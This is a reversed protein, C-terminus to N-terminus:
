RSGSKAIQWQKQQKRAAEAEVKNKIETCLIFGQLVFAPQSMLDNGGWPLTGFEKFQSWWQIHRWADEDVQSWPCRRLSPMWDWAINENKDSDCNRLSRYKDGEEYGEGKCKSCSWNRVKTDSSFIM